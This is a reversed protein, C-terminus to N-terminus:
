DSSATPDSESRRSFSAVQKMAEDSLEVHVREPRPSASGTRQSRRKAESTSPLLGLPHPALPLFGARIDIRKEAVSGCDAPLRSM